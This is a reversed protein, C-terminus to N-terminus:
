RSLLRKGGPAVACAARRSEPCAHAIGVGSSARSGAAGAGPMVREAADVGGRAAGGKWGRFVRGQNERNFFDISIKAM